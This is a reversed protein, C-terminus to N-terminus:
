TKDHEGDGVERMQTQRWGGKRNGGEARDTWGQGCQQCSSWELRGILASRSMLNCLLDLDSSGSHVPTPCCGSRKSKIESYMSQNKGEKRERDRGIRGM